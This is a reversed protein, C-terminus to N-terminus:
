VLDSIEGIDWTMAVEDDEDDVRVWWMRRESADAFHLWLTDQYLVVDGNFSWEGEPSDRRLRAITANSRWEGDWEEDKVPVGHEMVLARIEALAAENV